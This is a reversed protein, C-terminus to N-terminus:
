NYYIVAGSLTVGWLKGRSDVALDLVKQLGIVSRLSNANRDYLGNFDLARTTPFVLWSNKRKRKHIYSFKCDRAYFSGDGGFALSFACKPDNMETIWRGQRKWHLRKDTSVYAPNGYTDVALASGMWPKAGQQIRYERYLRNSNLDFRAINNGGNKQRTTEIVWVKNSRSNAAIKKARGNARTWPIGKETCFAKKGFAVSSMFVAILAKKM